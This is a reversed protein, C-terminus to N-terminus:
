VCLVLNKQASINKYKNLLMLTLQGGYQKLLFLKWHNNPAQLVVFLYLQVMRSELLYRVAKIFSGLSPIWGVKSERSTYFLHFISSINNEYIDINEYLYVFFELFFLSFFVSLFDIEKTQSFVHNETVGILSYKVSFAEFSIKWPLKLHSFKSFM